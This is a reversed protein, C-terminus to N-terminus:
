DLLLIDLCFSSPQKRNALVAEFYTAKESASLSLPQHDIVVFHSIIRLILYEDM